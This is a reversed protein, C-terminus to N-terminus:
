SSAAPPLCAYPVSNMSDPSLLRNAIGFIDSLRDQGVLSLWQYIGWGFVAFSISAIVSTVYPECKSNKIRLVIVILAFILTTIIASIAQTKRNNQGATVMKQVSDDANVPMQTEKRLLSVANSIIYGFYFSMIALWYSGFSYKLGTSAHSPVPFPPILSCLDSEQAAALNSTPNGFIMTLVPELILNGTFLIGPVLLIMTILMFLMAYNASMLSLILTTGILTLPLVALGNNIFAKIDDILTLLTPFVSSEM